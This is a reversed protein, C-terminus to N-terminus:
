TPAISYYDRTSLLHGVKLLSAGLVRCYRRLALLGTDPLSSHLGSYLWYVRLLLSLENGGSCNPVTFLSQFIM